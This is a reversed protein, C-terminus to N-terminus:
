PAGNQPMGEKLSKNPKKMMYHLMLAIIIIDLFLGAFNPENLCDIRKWVIPLYFILAVLCTRRSGRESISFAVLFGTIVM